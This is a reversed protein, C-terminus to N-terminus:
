HGEQSVLIGNMQWRHTQVSGTGQWKNLIECLFEGSKACRQTREVVDDQRHAEHVASIVSQIKRGLGQLTLHASGLLMADPSSLTPPSGMDILHLM